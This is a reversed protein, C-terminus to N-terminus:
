EGFERRIADRGAKSLRRQMGKKRARYTPFFSPRPPVHSGDKAKHGFEIHPGIFNGKEDKADAIIRYSMVRGPTPYAHISDRLHQDSDQTVADYPAARKMAAVLENAETDLQRQIAAQAAAPIRALRRQIKELNKFKVDLAM